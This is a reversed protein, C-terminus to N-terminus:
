LASPDYPSSLHKEPFYPKNNLRWFGTRVDSSLGTLGVIRNIKIPIEKLRWLLNNQM